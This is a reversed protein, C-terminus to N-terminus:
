VMSSIEAQNGNEDAIGGQQQMQQQLQMRQQMQQAIVTAQQIIPMVQEAIANQLQEPMKKVEEALQDIPSPEKFFKDVNDFGSSELGAKLVEVWDIKEFLVPNKAAETMMGFAEQLKARRDVLANRDEYYYQYNAQRIASTIEVEVRQGRDTILIVEPDIKFMALLEAINEIVQLSIQYIRDLKMAIRSDAGNRALQMETATRKGVAVNGMVNANIASADSIDNALLSMIEAINHSDFKMPEPSKGDYNNEFEFWKGPEYNIRGNKYKEKLFSDSSWIPPNANLKAIDSATNVLEEKAKSLELISKLPSIGRGTLDDRETYGYVFPNIYVPNKDFYILYRGALVEAVVNKYLKGNFRFDGHLYLVEFLDGYKTEQSLTYDDLISMPVSTTSDASLLEEEQEKTFTYLPNNKIEEISMFRKFIKICKDWTEKQGFRFNSVDFEFFMPNIAELNANEEVPLSVEEFGGLPTYRKVKKVHKKWDTKFILEGYIGWYDVALDYENGAKMKKLAYTLAEKQKDALEESARDVGVVDFMQGENSWVEKWMVSKMSDWTTFIKNEKINSKWSFERNRDLQTLQIYRVLERGTAIQTERKNRFERYWSSVQGALEERESPTLKKFPTQKEIEIIPM